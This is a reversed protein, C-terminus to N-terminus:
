IAYSLIWCRMVYALRIQSNDDKIADQIGSTWDGRAQYTGSDKTSREDPSFDLINTLRSANPWSASCVVSSQLPHASIVLTGFWFPLANMSLLTRCPRDTGDCFGLVALVENWPSENALRNWGFFMSYQM